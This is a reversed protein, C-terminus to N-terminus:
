DILAISKIEHELLGFIGDKTEVDLLIEHVDNDEPSQVMLVRGYYVIDDCDVLKVKQTEFQYLNM